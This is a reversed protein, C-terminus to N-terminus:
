GRWERGVRLHHGTHAVARAGRARPLRERHVAAHQRPQRRPVAERLLPGHQRM